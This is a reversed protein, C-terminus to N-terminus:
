ARDKEREFIFMLFKKFVFHFLIFYTGVDEEEGM